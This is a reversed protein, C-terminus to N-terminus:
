LNTGSYFFVSECGNARESFAIHIRKGTIRNNGCRWVHFHGCVMAGYLVPVLNYADLIQM